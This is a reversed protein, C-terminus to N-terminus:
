TNSVSAKFEQGSAAEVAQLSLHKQSRVARLRVGVTEAYSDEIGLSQDRFDSM